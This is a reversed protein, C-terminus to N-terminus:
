IYVPLRLYLLIEGGPIVFKSASCSLRWYCTWYCTRNSTIIYCSINRSSPAREQLSRFCLGLFHMKIPGLIGYLLGLLGRTIIAMWYTSSLGFLANFVVVSLISTMICPKREYKDSVYGMACCQHNKWPFLNGWCFWCLVWHRARREHCQLGQDTANCCILSFSGWQFCPVRM